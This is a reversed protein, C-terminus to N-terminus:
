GQSKKGIPILADSDDHNPPLNEARTASSRASLLEENTIQELAKRFEEPYQEAIKEAELRMLERLRHAPAGRHAAYRVQMAAYFRRRVDSPVRINLRIEPDTTASTKKKSSM